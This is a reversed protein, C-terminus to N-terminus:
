GSRSPKLPKPPSAKGIWGSSLRNGKGATFLRNMPLGAPKKSSAGCGTWGRVNEKCSVPALLGRVRRVAESLSLDEIRAYFDLAHGGTLCKTCFYSDDRGNLLLSDTGHPCFLCRGVISRSTDETRTLSTYRDVLEIGDLDDLLDEWQEIAPVDVSQEGTNALSNGSLVAKSFSLVDGIDSLRAVDGKDVAPLVSGAGMAALMKFLMRRTFM